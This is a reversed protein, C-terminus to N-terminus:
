ARTEWLRGPALATAAQRRGRRRDDLVVGYVRGARTRSVWGEAVDHAVRAPDRLPRRVTAAAARRCRSSRRAPQSRARRLLEAAAGARGLARAELGPHPRGALGGRAGQAPNIMGDATYFIRMACGEIPGLEVRVGPAGRFQGAGESDQVLRRERIHIPHHLEDVEICDHRCIGANGVHVITLWGDTGPAGAGGTLGLHVQNVFPADDRRPDNGSIM